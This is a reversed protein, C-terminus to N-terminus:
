GPPTTACWWSGYVREDNSLTRHQVLEARIRGRARGPGTAVVEVRGSYATRTGNPGITTVTVNQRLAHPGDVHYSGPGHFNRIAFQVRVLGPRTGGIRFAYSTFVLGGYGLTCTDGRGVPLSLDTSTGFQREVVVLRSHRPRNCYAKDPAYIVLRTASMDVLEHRLKRGIRYTVDLTRGYTKLGPPVLGCGSVVFDLQISATRGAPLVVASGTGPGYPASLYGVPPCREPCPWEQVLDFSTGVQRILRPGRDTVRAGVLTLSSHSRNRFRVALGLHANQEYEVTSGDPGLGIVGPGGFEAGQLNVLPAGAFRDAGGGGCAALLLASAVVPLLRKV